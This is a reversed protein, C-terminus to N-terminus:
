YSKANLSIYYCKEQEDYNLQYDGQLESVKLKPYMVNLKACSIRVYPTCDGKANNVAYGSSSPALYIRTPMGNFTDFGVAINNARQMKSIWIGTRMMLRLVGGDRNLSLRIDAKTNIKIRGVNVWEISM